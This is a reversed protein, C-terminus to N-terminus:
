FHGCVLAYAPFVKAIRIWTVCRGFQGRAEREELAFVSMCLYMSSDEKFWSAVLILVFGLFVFSFSFIIIVEDKDASHVVM